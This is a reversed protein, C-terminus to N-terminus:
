SVEVWAHADHDLPFQLLVGLGHSGWTAGTRNDVIEAVWTTVTRDIIRITFQQYPGGKYTAGLRFRKGSDPRPQPNAYDNPQLVEPPNLPTPTPQAITVPQPITTTVASEVTERCAVTPPINSPTTYSPANWTTLSAVGLTGSFAVETSFNVSQGTFRDHVAVAQRSRPALTLSITVPALDSRDPMITVTATQPTTLPNFVGVWADRDGVALGRWVSGEAFYFVPSGACGTLRTVTVSQASAAAGMLLLTVATVVTVFQSM